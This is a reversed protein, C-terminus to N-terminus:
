SKDLASREKIAGQKAQLAHHPMRQSLTFRSLASCAGLGAAARHGAKAWIAGTQSM